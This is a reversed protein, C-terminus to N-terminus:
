SETIGKWCSQVRLNCFKHHIYKKQTM